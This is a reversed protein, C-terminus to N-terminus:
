AQLAARRRFFSPPWRLPNSRWRRRCSARCAGVGLIASPLPGAHALESNSSLASNPKPIFRPITCRRVLRFSFTAFARSIFRVAFVDFLRKGVPKCRQRPHRPLRWLRSRSASCSCAARLGDLFGCRAVYLFYQDVYEVIGIHEHLFGDPYEASVAPGIIDTVTAQVMDDRHALVYVYQHQIRLKIGIGAALGGFGRRDPEVALNAAAPFLVFFFSRPIIAIDYPYM